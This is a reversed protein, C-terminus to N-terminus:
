LKQIAQAATHRAQNVNNAKVLEQLRTILLDKESNSAQLQKVQEDKETDQHLKVAATKLSEVEELRKQLSRKGKKLAEIEQVLTSVKLEEIFSELDQKNKTELKTVKFTRPPTDLQHQKCEKFAQTTTASCPLDRREVQSSVSNGAPLQVSGAKTQVKAKKDIPKVEGESGSDPAIHRKLRARQNLEQPQSAPSDQYKEV